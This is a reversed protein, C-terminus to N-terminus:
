RISYGSVRWKGDQQRMPTVTELASTKHEFFTDFQIIVYEGDPAGPVSTTYTKSKVRRLFLKGLPKRETELSQQWQEQSVANRFTESAEEWSQAYNGADVMGLWKGAAILAASEKASNAWAGPVALLILGM